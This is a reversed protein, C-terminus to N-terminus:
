ESNPTIGPEHDLMRGSTRGFPRDENPTIASIDIHTDSRADTDDEDDLLDDDEDDLIYEEDDTEIPILEEDDDDDDEELDEDPGPLGNENYPTVTPIRQDNENATTIGPRNNEWGRSEADSNMAGTGASIDDNTSSRLDESQNNLFHDQNLAM